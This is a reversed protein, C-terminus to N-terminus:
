MKEIILQYVFDDKKPGLIITNVGFSLKEIPNHKDVFKGNVYSGLKSGNDKFFIKGDKKEIVFHNRSITFPHNNMLYFDNKHFIRDTKRRSFRGIKFPFKKIVLKDFDGFSIEANVSVPKFVVNYVCDDSEVPNTLGLEVLKNSYDRVHEALASVILMIDHYNEEEALIDFIRPNIERLTVNTKAKVSSERLRDQIIGLEGIVDGDKATAIIVEKGNFEKLIEVVGEIIQYIKISPEGKKFIYENKKFTIPKVYTRM